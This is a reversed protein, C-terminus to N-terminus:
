RKKGGPRNTNPKNTNTPRRPPKGLSVCICAKTSDNRAPCAPHHAM